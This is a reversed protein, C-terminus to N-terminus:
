VAAPVQGDEPPVRAGAEVQVRWIAKVGMAVPVRVPETARLVDAEVRGCVAASVPMPMWDWSVM